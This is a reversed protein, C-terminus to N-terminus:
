EVERDREQSIIETADTGGRFSNRYRLFARMYTPDAFFPKQPLPKVAMIKAVLRGRDTIYIEGESSQRVWQGTQEHLERISITKMHSM